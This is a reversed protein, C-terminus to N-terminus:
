TTVVDFSPLSYLTVQNVVSTGYHRTNFNHQQNHCRCYNMDKNSPDNQDVVMGMKEVIFQYYHLANINLCHLKRVHMSMSIVNILNWHHGGGDRFNMPDYRQIIKERMHVIICSWHKNYCITIPVLAKIQIM